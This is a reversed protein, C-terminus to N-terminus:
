EVDGGKKGKRRPLLSRKPKDKPTEEIAPTDEVPAEEVTPAAPPNTFYRDLINMMTDEVIAKVDSATLPEEEIVPTEVKPEVPTPAIRPAEEVKPPIITIDVRAPEEVFEEEPIEDEIGDEDDESVTISVDGVIQPDYLHWGHEKLCEVVVTSRDIFEQSVRETDELGCDPEFPPIHVRFSQIGDTSVIYKATIDVGPVASFALTHEEVDGTITGTDTHWTGYEGFEENVLPEFDGSFNVEYLIFGDLYAMALMDEENYEADDLDPYIEVSPNTGSVIVPAPFPTGMRSRAILDIYDASVDLALSKLNNDLVGVRMRWDNLQGYCRQVVMFADQKPDVTKMCIEASAMAKAISQKSNLVAANLAGLSENMEEPEAGKCTAAYSRCATDLTYYDSVSVALDSVFTPLADTM